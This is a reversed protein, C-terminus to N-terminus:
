IIKCPPKTVDVIVRVQVDDSQHLQEPMISVELVPVDALRAETPWHLM